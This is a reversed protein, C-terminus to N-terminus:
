KFLLFIFNVFDVKHYCNFVGAFNFLRLTRSIFRIDFGFIGHISDRPYTM